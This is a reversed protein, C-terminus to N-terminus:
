PNSRLPPVDLKAPVRERGQKFTDRIDTSLAENRGM